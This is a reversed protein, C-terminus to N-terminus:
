DGLSVILLLLGVVGLPVSGGFIALFILFIGFLAQAIRTLPSRKNM